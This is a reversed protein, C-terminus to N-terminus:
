LSQMRRNQSINPFEVMPSGWAVLLTETQGCQLVKKHVQLWLPPMSKFSSNIMNSKPLLVVHNLYVPSAPMPWSLMCGVMCTESTKTVTHSKIILQSTFSLKPLPSINQQCKNNKTKKAVLYGLETLRNGHFKAGHHFTYKIWYDWNLIKSAREGFFNIPWFCAFNPM